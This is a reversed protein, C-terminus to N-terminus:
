EGPTPPTSRVPATSTTGFVKGFEDFAQDASMAEIEQRRAVNAEELLLIEKKTTAIQQNLTNMAAAHEASAAKDRERLGKLVEAQKDHELQLEKLRKNLADRRSRALATVGIAAAVAALAALISKKPLIGVQALIFILAGVVLLAGIVWIEVNDVIVVASANLM